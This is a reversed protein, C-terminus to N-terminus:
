YKFTFPGLDFQRNQNNPKIIDGPVDSTFQSIGPALKPQTSPSVSPPVSIQNQPLFMWLCVGLIVVVACVIGFILWPNM